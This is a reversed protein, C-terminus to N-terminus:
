GVFYRMQAGHPKRRLFDRSIEETEALLRAREEAALRDIAVESVVLGQRLCFNTQRRVWEYDKGKWTCAALDVIADEGVKTVEFGASRMVEAQERDINFFAPRYKKVRCFELFESLLAPWHERPALLGGIVF